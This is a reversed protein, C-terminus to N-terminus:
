LVEAEVENLVRVNEGDNPGPGPNAAVYNADTPLLDATGLLLIQIAGLFLLGLTLFVGQDIGDHVCENPKIDPKSIQVTSEHTPEPPKAKNKLVMEPEIQTAEPEIESQTTPTLRLDSDM